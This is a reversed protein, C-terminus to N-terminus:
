NQFYLVHWFLGAKGPLICAFARELHGTVATVPVALLPTCIGYCRSDEQWQLPRETELRFFFDAGIKLFKVKFQWQWGWGGAFMEENASVERHQGNIGQLTRWAGRADSIKLICKNSSCKMKLSLYGLPVERLIREWPRLIELSCHARIRIGMKCSWSARRRSPKM